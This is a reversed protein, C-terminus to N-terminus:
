FRDSYDSKDSHKEVMSEHLDSLDFAKPDFDSGDKICLWGIMDAYDKSKPDALTAKLAEYGWCGGCDEPPCAGQGKLLQPYTETSIPAIIKELTITHSWSDGFDYEYNIKAKERDGFIQSLKYKREDESYGWDDDPMPISFTRQGIRFQHLHCDYWGMAGQIIKHLALLTDSSDVLIRRYVTPKSVGDLQIKLQYIKSM